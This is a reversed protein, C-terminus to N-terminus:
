HAALPAAASGQYKRKRRTRFEYQEIRVAVRCDDIRVVRGQAVFKLLCTGSLLAPWSISLEVLKGSRPPQDTRFLVGRSSFNVTLGSGSEPPEIRRDLTRYTVEQEIPYRKWARREVAPDLRGDGAM